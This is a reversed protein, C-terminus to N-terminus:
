EPKADSFIERGRDWMAHYAVTPLYNMNVTPKQL